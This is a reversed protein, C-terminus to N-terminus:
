WGFVDVRINDKYNYIDRVNYNTIGKPSSQWLLCSLM